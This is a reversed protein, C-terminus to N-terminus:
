YELKFEKCLTRMDKFSLLKHSAGNIIHFKGMFSEIDFDEAVDNKLLIFPLAYPEDDFSLTLALGRLIKPYINKYDTKIFGNLFDQKQNNKTCELSFLLSNKIKTTFRGTYLNRNEKLFSLEVKNRKEISFGGDKVGGDDIKKYYFTYDGHIELTPDVSFFNIIECFRNFEEKVTKQYHEYYFEDEDHIYEKKGALYVCLISLTSDKPIKSIMGRFLGEYYPQLAKGTLKKVEATKINEAIEVCYKSLNNKENQTNPETKFVKIWVETLIFYMFLCRKVAEM